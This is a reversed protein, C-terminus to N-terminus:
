QVTVVKSLRLDSSSSGIMIKIKDKELVWGNRSTDWYRLAAARLPMRISKSEHAPVHVRAFGELELRPRQVKSGIHQIYLQVVEDGARQGTNTVKVEVEMSKGSSLTPTSTRLNSYRFSTYSLGFGFPFLPKGKFYMYTRGDRINYDMM